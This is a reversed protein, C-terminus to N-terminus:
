KTNLIYNILTYIFDEEYFKYLNANTGLDWPRHVLIDMREKMTIDSETFYLVFSEDIHLDFICNHNQIQKRIEDIIDSLQPDKAKGRANNVLYNYRNLHRTFLWYKLSLELLTRIIITTAIPYNDYSKALAKVEKAVSIISKTMPCNVDLGTWKLLKFAHSVPKAVTNHNKSFPIVNNQVPLSNKTNGTNPKTSVTSSYKDIVINFYEEQQATTNLNRSTYLSKKTVPDINTDQVFQILVNILVGKDLEKLRKLEKQGIVREITSFNDITTNYERPFNDSYLLFIEPVDARTGYTLIFYCQQIRSWKRAQGGDTHESLIFPFADMINNYEVCPITMDDSIKDLVIQEVRRKFKKNNIINPNLVSKIAAIRRNGDIAVLKGNKNILSVIKQPFFGEQNISNILEFMDDANENILVNIATIDDITPNHRPNEPNVFIDNISLNVIKM